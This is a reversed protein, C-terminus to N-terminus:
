TCDLEGVAAEPLVPKWHPDGTLGERVPGREKWAMSCVSLEM